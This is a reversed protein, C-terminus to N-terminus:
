KTTKKTSAKAAVKKEVAKAEAKVEAKPAEKAETEAAAKKAVPKEAKVATKKAAPKKETAKKEVAKKVAPKKAPKKLVLKELVLAAGLDGEVRLKNDNYANNFALKGDLIDILVDSPVFVIANRDYYEYPQVDVRGDSVELYFAGEGEGSVNFQIAVHGAIAKADAKAYVVLAKGVIEEYTM